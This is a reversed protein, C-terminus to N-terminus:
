SLEFRARTSSCLEDTGATAEADAMLTGTAKGVVAVTGSGKATDDDCEGPASLRLMTSCIRAARSAFMAAARAIFAARDCDTVRSVEESEVDTEVVIDAVTETTAALDSFSDM